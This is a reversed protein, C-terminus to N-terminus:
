LWFVPHPSNLLTPPPPSRCLGHSLAPADKRYLFHNFFHWTKTKCSTHAMGQGKVVPNAWKARQYLLKTVRWWVGLGPQIVIGPAKLHARFTGSSLCLFVWPHSHSPLNEFIRHDYYTNNGRFNSHIKSLKHFICRFAGFQTVAGMGNGTSHRFCTLEFTQLLLLM